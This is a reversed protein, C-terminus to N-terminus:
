RNHHWGGGGGTRGAQPAAQQQPAAMQQTQRGRWGGGGFGQQPTQQQPAAVQQTQRGRWGGGFGGGGQQPAAQQPAAQQQGAFGQRNWGGGFSGRNWNHNGGSQAQFNQQQPQYARRSYNQGGFNGGRNFGGGYSGGRNFGGRNAYYARGLAPGFHGGRSNGGHWGGHVWFQRSGGYDRYFFPGTSWGGDYYVDGYYVPLDYYDDPCGYYPDCNVAEQDYGDYPGYNQGYGNDPGYNQGYGNDPGYGQDPAYGQNYGQDNRPDYPQAGAPVAALAGTVGFAAIAMKFSNRM